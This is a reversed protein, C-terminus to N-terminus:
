SPQRFCLFLYCDFAFLNQFSRTIKQFIPCITAQNMQNWQGGSIGIDSDFHIQSFRRIPLLPHIRKRPTWKEWSFCKHKCAALVISAGESIELGFNMLIGWGLLSGSLRQAASILQAIMWWIYQGAPNKNLLILEASGIQPVVVVLRSDRIWLEPVESCGKIKTKGASM